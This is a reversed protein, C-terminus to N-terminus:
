IPVQGGWTRVNESIVVGGYLVTALAIAGLKLPWNGVLFSFFRRM